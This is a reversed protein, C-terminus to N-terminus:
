RRPISVTEENLWNTITTSIYDNFTMLSIQKASLFAEMTELKREQSPTLMDLIQLMQLANLPADGAFCNNFYGLFTETM